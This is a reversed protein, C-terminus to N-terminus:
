TVSYFYVPPKFMLFKTLKDLENSTIVFDLLSRFFNDSVVNGSKKPVTSAVLPNFQAQTPPLM